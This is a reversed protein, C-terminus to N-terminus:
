LIESESNNTAESLPKFINLVFGLFNELLITALPFFTSCNKSIFLFLKAKIDSPLSKLKLRLSESNSISNFSSNSIESLM